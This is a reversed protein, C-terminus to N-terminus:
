GPTKEQRYGLHWLVMALYTATRRVAFEPMWPCALHLLEHIETDLKRRGTLRSDVEILPGARPEHGEDTHLLQTAMGEAGHKLLPRYVIRPIKRFDITGKKTYGM